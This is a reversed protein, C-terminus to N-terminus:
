GRRMVSSIVEAMKDGLAKFSNALRELPNDGAVGMNEGIFMVLAIVAVLVLLTIILGKTKKPM